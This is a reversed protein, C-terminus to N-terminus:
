LLGKEFDEDERFGWHQCGFGADLLWLSVSWM